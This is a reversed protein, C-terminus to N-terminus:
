HTSGPRTLNVRPSSADVIMPKASTGLFHRSEESWNKKEPKIVKPIAPRIIANEPEHPRKSYAIWCYAITLVTVLLVALLLAYEMARTAKFFAVVRYRLNYLM